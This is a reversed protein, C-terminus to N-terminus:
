RKIWADLREKLLRQQLPVFDENAVVNRMILRAYEEDSDIVRVGTTVIQNLLPEGVDYLDILDM